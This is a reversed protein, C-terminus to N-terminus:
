TAYTRCHVCSRSFPRRSTRTWGWSPSPMKGPRRGGSIFHRSISTPKALLTGLSGIFGPRDLNNVLLMVPHFDAELDMDKIEVIKPTGANVAGALARWRAGTLVKIRILSGYVPSTERRSETLLTGKQKLVVPASVM